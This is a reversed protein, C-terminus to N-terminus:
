LKKCVSQKLKMGLNNYKTIFMRQIQFKLKNLTAFNSSISGNPLM